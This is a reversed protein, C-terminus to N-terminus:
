YKRLTIRYYYFIILLNIVNEKIMSMNPQSLNNTLKKSNDVNYIKYM